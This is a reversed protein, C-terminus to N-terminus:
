RARRTVPETELGSRRRRIGAALAALGTGALALSAPEPTPSPAIAGGVLGAAPDSDSVYGTSGDALNLTVVTSTPLSFAYLTGDVDTIGALGFDTSSLLTAVGTTTNIQYLDPAILTTPTFTIPDFIGADFNAYLKGGYGFLTEDFIYFSGDPDGPVSAHPIFPLGPIGTAGVLTAAGTAPNIAYLSNALDTAYLSSGVNGIINASNTGCPSSPLSCDGLGTAGITSLVGTAPNISNLDGNFGLSLLTGGPGLVLGGTGAGIGPGIATFAGTSLDVSGFQGSDGITYVIPVAKAAAATLTLALALALKHQLMM